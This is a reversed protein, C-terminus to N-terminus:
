DGDRELINRFSLLTYLQEFTIEGRDYLALIRAVLEREQARGEVRGEQRGEEKLQKIRRPILLVVYGVGEAIIASLLAAGAAAFTAPATKAPKTATATSATASPM